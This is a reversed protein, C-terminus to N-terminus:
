DESEDANRIVIIGRYYPRPREDDEELKSVRPVLATIDGKGFRLDEPGLGERELIRQLYANCLTLVEDSYLIEPDYNRVDYGLHQAFKVIIQHYFTSGYLLIVRGEAALHRELGRIISFGLDGTDTEDTNVEADYDLFYPPNSVIVDFREDPGIVSYASMDAPSVLRPEIIDAYGFREANLGACEVAAESIDTAVIKVAGLRAAYLAIIGSGTGIDLVTSGEFRERNAKM